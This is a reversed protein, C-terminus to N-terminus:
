RRYLYSSLPFNISRAVKVAMEEDITCRYRTSGELPCSSGKCIFNANYLTSLQLLVDSTLGVNEGDIAAGNEFQEEEEVMGETVSAICQFIALLRELPFSGPGKLIIEEAMSDKRDMSNQSNKKRKRNILIGSSDFLSADLTAPNRSAIFASLLLYKLSMSMHFDLENSAGKKIPKRIGKQHCDGEQKSQHSSWSSAKFVDNLSVSLYPQLNDFLRRKMAEDPVVSLDALPECYIQFLPQLAVSLEDVRRTVRFFSKLVVSLFSSYLKPNPQNMMLIHHLDELTYGPFYVTIPEVSGTSLYYSDPTSSSIYIIGVEPIKLIEHLRLLLPVINSSKDWTRLLEFNDFILYIMEGRDNESGLKLRRERLARVVSVLTNRLLDIFESPKECRKSGCNGKGLNSGYLLLQRLVSDFLIRPSYCTRFGAYVFPRNLYRFTQLISISKGNSTGGYILLPFMPSNLPGVLQLIELIQPKRGPLSSFLTELSIPDESSYQGPILEPSKTQSSYPYACNPPPQATSTSLHSSSRTKRGLSLSIVEDKAM